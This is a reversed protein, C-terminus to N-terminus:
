WCRRAHFLAIEREDGDWAVPRSEMTVSQWDGSVSASKEVTDMFEIAQPRFPDSVLLLGGPAVLRPLLGRLTDHLTREYLIDSGLVVDFPPRATEPLDFNRWDGACVRLNPVPNQAANHRCLALAAEQYDTQIVSAAGLHAATLGPIGVGAGLELVRKGAVLSPEEALRSALGPAAAWLLLGYPFQALDDDTQTSEILADQNAVYTITWVRGAIEFRTEALGFREALGTLLEADRLAPRDAADPM